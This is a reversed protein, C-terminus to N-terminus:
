LIVTNVIYKKADLQVQFGSWKSNRKKHATPDHGGQQFANANHRQRTSITTTEEKEFDSGDIGSRHNGVTVTAAAVGRGGRGRM